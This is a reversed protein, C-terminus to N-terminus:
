IWPMDVLTVEDETFEKGKVMRKPPCSTYGDNQKLANVRRLTETASIRDHPNDAAMTYCVDQLQIDAVALFQSDRVVRKADEGTFLEVFTVGLSYVDAQTTNSRAQGDLSKMMREPAIYELSLPGVSLKDSAFRTSGLDGIKAEMTKSVLINTSRIDGHLLPPQLQHLYMVGCLCGVAIDVQERMCLYSRSRRSAKIVDRLSGELLEMVIRLPVENEIIAGCISLVNPHHVRSSVSVERHIFSANLEDARLFDYFTKVAVSVGRWMGVGVEGYAGKGLSTGIMILDDDSIQLVHDYQRQFQQLQERARESRELNTTLRQITIYNDQVEQRLPNILKREEELSAKLEELEEGQQQLQRMQDELTASMQDIETRMQALQLQHQKETEEREVIIRHMVNEKVLLLQQNAENRQQLKTIEKQLDDVQSTMGIDEQYLSVENPQTLLYAAEKHKNMKRLCDSLELIAAITSPHFPSLQRLISVSERLITQGENWKNQQVLIKGLGFLSRGRLPHNVALNSTDGSLCFFQMAENDKSEAAFCEAIRCHILATQHVLNMPDQKDLTMADNLIKEAQSYHKQLMYVQGLESLVRAKSTQM